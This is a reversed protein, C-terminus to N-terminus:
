QNKIEALFSELNLNKAFEGGYKRAEEVYKEFTNINHDTPDLAETWNGQKKLKKIQSEIQSAEIILANKRNVLSSGIFIHGDKYPDAIFTKGNVKFSIITHPMGLMKGDKSFGIPGITRIAIVNSIKGSVPKAARLLAIATACFTQCGFIGFKSGRFTPIKKGSIIDDATQKGYFKIATINPASVFQIKSAFRIISQASSLASKGKSLELAKQKVIPTRVATKKLLYRGRGITQVQRELWKRGELNLFAREQISKEELSILPRRKIIPKRQRM